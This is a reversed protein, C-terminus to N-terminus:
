SKEVVNSICGREGDLAGRRLGRCLNMDVSLGNPFLRKFIRFRALVGNEPSWRWSNVQMYHGSSGSGYWFRTGPVEACRILTFQAGQHVNRSRM